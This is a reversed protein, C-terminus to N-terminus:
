TFLVAHLDTDARPLPVPPAIMHLEKRTGAEIGELPASASM